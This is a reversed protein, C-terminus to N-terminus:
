RREVEDGMTLGTTSYTVLATAAREDVKVIVLEGIAIRAHELKEAERPLNDIRNDEDVYRYVIFLDGPCVGKNQGIDIYVITGESAVGRELPGLYGNHVGPIQRTVHFSSGFNLLVDKSSVIAGTLEGPTQMTPSFPRPRPPQTFAIQQFPMLIDGPDVADACTRLVRALSFEPQTLVVRIQAIDLYHKGLDREEHTRGYQNSLHKTPRIVSYMNGVAIGNRSGQSLYVYETEVALVGGAPDFKAIVKLDHSVHSHRVFGSCYLDEFKVEPTPKQQEV